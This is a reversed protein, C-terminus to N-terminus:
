PGGRGRCVGRRGRRPDDAPDPRRAWQRGREMRPRLRRPRVRDIRRGGVTPEPVGDVCGGPVVETDVDFRCRYTNLLAEQSQILGDRVEIDQQTPNQPAVGASVADPTPCEGPVVDTDVGFLCRYTNLLNEQDAILQDRVAIDGATQASVAPGLVAAAVAFVVSLAVCFPASRGALSM